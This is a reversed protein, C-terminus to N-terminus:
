FGDALDWHLGLARALFVAMQARTVPNDPCFKTTECGATIGSARLAAISNRFGAPLHGIDTFPHSLGTRIQRRWWLRVGYFSVKTGDAPSVVKIYYTDDRNKITDIGGTCNGFSSTQGGTASDPLKVKCLTDCPGGSSYLPRTCRLIEM